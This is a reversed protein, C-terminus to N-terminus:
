IKANIVQLGSEPDIQILTGDGSETMETAYRVADVGSGLQISGDRQASVHIILRPHKRFYFALASIAFAISAEAFSFIYLPTLFFNAIRTGVLM